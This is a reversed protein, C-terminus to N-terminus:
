YQYLYKKPPHCLLYEEVENELLKIIEKRKEKGLQFYLAAFAETEEEREAIRKNELAVYQELTMEKM